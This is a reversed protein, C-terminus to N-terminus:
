DVREPARPIYGPDVLDIGKDASEVQRRRRVVIQALHHRLQFREIEVVDQRHMAASLVEDVEGFPLHRLLQDEAGGPAAEGEGRSRTTTRACGSATGPAGSTGKRTGSM